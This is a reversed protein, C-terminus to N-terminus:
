ALFEVKMNLGPWPNGDSVVVDVELLVAGDRKDEFEEVREEPAM